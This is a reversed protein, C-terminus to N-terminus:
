LSNSIEIKVPRDKVNLKMSSFTWSHRLMLKTQGNRSTDVFDKLGWIDSRVRRKSFLLTTNFHGPTTEPLESSNM